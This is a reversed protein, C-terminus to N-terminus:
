KNLYKKLALRYVSNDKAKRIVEYNNKACSCYYLHLAFANKIIPAEMDIEGNFYKYTNNWDLPNVFHTGNVAFDLRYHAVLKRLEDKGYKPWYIHHKRRHHIDKDRQLLVSKEQQEIESTWSFVSCPDGAGIALQKIGAHDKPFKLLYTGISEPTDKGIWIDDDPLDDSLCLVDMDTFWGGHKSLYLWRFWDTFLGPNFLCNADILDNANQVITGEPINDYTKYCFLQFKHGHKLYSAICLEIIEPLTDGIWLGTVLQNKM